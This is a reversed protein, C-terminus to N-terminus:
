PVRGAARAIPASVAFLPAGTACAKPRRSAGRQRTLFTQGQIQFKRTGKEEPSGWVVVAEAAGSARQAPGPVAGVTRRHVTCGTGRGEGLPPATSRLGYTALSQGPSVGLPTTHWNMPHDSTPHALRPAPERSLPAARRRATTLRVGGDADPRRAPCIRVYPNRCNFRVAM